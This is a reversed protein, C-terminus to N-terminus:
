RNENTKKIEDSINMSSIIIEDNKSMLPSLILSDVGYLMLRLFNTLKISNKILRINDSKFLVGKLHKNPWFDSRKTITEAFLINYAKLQAPEKTKIHNLIQKRLEDFEDYTKVIYYITQRAREEAAPEEAAPEKAAPEEAAPEKAAPEESTNSLWDSKFFITYTTSHTDPVIITDGISFNINISNNQENSDLLLPLNWPNTPTLLTKLFQKYAVPAHLDDRTASAANIQKICTDCGIIGFNSGGYKSNM